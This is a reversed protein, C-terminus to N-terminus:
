WGPLPPLNFPLDPLPSRYRDPRPVAPDSWWWEVGGTPVHTCYSEVRLDGKARRLTGGPIGAATAAEFVEAARRPGNALEARLWGAARDRPRLPAAPEDGLLNAGMEVAGAWEVVAGGADGPKVRYALSRAPRALNAKSVALVGLDPDTPHRAALLGARVAAIFGVSGAGRHIAKRTGQKRLHRILLIACDTREALATLRGLVRRVGQDHNTAVGPPLFATIPDIVALDARHTRILEELDPLRQPLRLPVGDPSTVVIVRDLDAGAAEARPRTTDAARDEASLLLTTHPRPVPSGDPLPRGRSLRAALDITLLSKGIGPDGDLLVLKGRPLYPEWLWAISEPQVQSLPQAVLASM